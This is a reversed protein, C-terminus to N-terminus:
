AQVERRRREGFVVRLFRQGVGLQEPKDPHLIRQQALYAAVVRERIIDPSSSEGRVKSLGDVVYTEGKNFEVQM